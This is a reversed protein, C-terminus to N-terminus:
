GKIVDGSNNPFLTELQSLYNNTCKTCETGDLDRTCQALGYMQRLNSYPTTGNPFWLPSTDIDGKLKRM